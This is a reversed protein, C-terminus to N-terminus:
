QGVYHDSRPFTVRERVPYLPHRPIAQQREKGKRADGADRHGDRLRQQTEAADQRAGIEVGVSARGLAHADAPERGLLEDGTDTALLPINQVPFLVREQRQDGAQRRDRRSPDDDVTLFDLTRMRLDPDYKLGVEQEIPSASFISTSVSPRRVTAPLHQAHCPVQIIQNLNTKTM